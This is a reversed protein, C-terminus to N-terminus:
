IAYPYAIAASICENRPQREKKITQKILATQIDNNSLHCKHKFSKNTNQNGKMREKKNLRNRFPLRLRNQAIKVPESM